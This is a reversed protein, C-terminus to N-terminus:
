LLWLIENTDLLLMQNEGYKHTHTHTQPTDNIIYLCACMYARVCTCRFSEPPKQYKLNVLVLLRIAFLDYRDRVTNAIFSYISLSLLLLLLLSLSLTHKAWIGSDLDSKSTCSDAIQNFARAVMTGHLTNLWLSLHLYKCLFLLCLNLSRSINNQSMASKACRLQILGWHRHSHTHTYQM